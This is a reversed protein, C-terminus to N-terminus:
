RELSFLIFHLFGCAGEIRFNFGLTSAWRTLCMGLLIILRVAFVLLLLRGCGGSAHESPHAARPDTEGARRPLRSRFCLPQTLTCRDFGPTTFNGYWGVAANELREEKRRRKRLIGNARPDLKGM